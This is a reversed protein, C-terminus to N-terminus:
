VNRGSCGSIEERCKECRGVSGAVEEGSELAIRLKETLDDVEAELDTQDGTEGRRVNFQEMDKLLTDLTNITSTVLFSPIAPPQWVLCQGTLEQYQDEQRVDPVVAGDQVVDRSRQLTNVKM